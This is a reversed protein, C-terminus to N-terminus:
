LWCRASRGVTTSYVFQGVLRFTESGSGKRMRLSLEPLHGNRMPIRVVCEAVVIIHCKAVTVLGFHCGLWATEPAGGRFRNALHTRGNLVACATETLM